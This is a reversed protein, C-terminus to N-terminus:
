GGSARPDPGPLTRSGGPDKRLRRWLAAHERKSVTKQELGHATCALVRADHKGVEARGLLRHDPGAAVPTRSLAVFSYPLARLDIGLDRAARVWAGDTFVEPPPAAFFHCWDRESALTPCRQTHPCPAVVHFSPLLEDRLAALARAEAPRGPEVLLVTRSTALLARLAAHGAADLEGLVHSVLLVDPSQGTTTAIPEARVEPREARLRRVAFTRAAASRDHCRVERAGFAAVFRRAAIGSGCGFDLVVADDARPLGRDRCEALAADWKWGIRAGLVADYAALDGADRWYDPLAQGLREDDLFLSRLRQIRELQDRSLVM